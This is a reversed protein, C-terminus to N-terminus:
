PRRLGHGFVASRAPTIAAAASIPIMSESFPHFNRRVIKCWEFGASEAAVLVLREIAHGLTGDVQGCEDPFDDFKLGIELLPRIAASKGWFMSGSPFDLREYDSLAIGMREVFSCAARYNTGWGLAGRLEFYHQPFVIGLKEDELLTIISEVIAASGLITELLYENWGVLEGGAHLSKKTHAHVFLDYNAYVDRFGILKPAIDRGRNPLIRIETSGATWDAAATAIARAKATTDTSVFLDVRGPINHLRRIIEGLMEPYYAHVIAAIRTAALPQSAYGFPVEIAKDDTLLTRRAARDYQGGEDAAQQEILPDYYAALYRLLATLAGAAGRSRALAVGDRIVERPALYVPVPAGILNALERMSAGFLAVLGRELAINRGNRLHKRVEDILTRPQTDTM